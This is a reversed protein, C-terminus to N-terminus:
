RVASSSASAKAPIGGECATAALTKVVSLAVATSSFIRSSILADTGAGAVKWSPGPPVGVTKGNASTVSIVKLAWTSVAGTNEGRVTGTAASPITGACDIPDGEPLVGRWIVFRDLLEDRGDASEGAVRGHLRRGIDVEVQDHWRPRGRRAAPRDRNKPVAEPVVLVVAREDDSGRHRSIADGGDSDI